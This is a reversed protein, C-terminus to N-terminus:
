AVTIVSPCLAASTALQSRPPRARVKAADYGTVTAAAGNFEPRSTGGVRVRAGVVLEPAAGAEAAAPAAAPAAIPAPAPAPAPAAAPVPAPVPTRIRRRRRLRALSVDSLDLDKGVDCVVNRWFSESDTPM